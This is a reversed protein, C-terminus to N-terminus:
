LQLSKAMEKEATETLLQPMTKESFKMEASIGRPYHSKWTQEATM